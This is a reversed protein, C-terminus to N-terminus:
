LPLSARLDKRQFTSHNKDLFERCWVEISVLSFMVFSADIYGRRDKEILEKVAKPNFLGRQKLSSESLTEEVLSKLEQNMWHRIPLGFGQKKRHLIEEPVLGKVAEKFIFKTEFRKMKLCSPIKAVFDVVERDILPVRVEVGQSMSMKDVYNLNHDALFHKTELYLMRNLIDKEQEHRDLSRHFPEWVSHPLKLAKFRDGLLPSIAGPFQCMFYSSLRSDLDWELSQFVKFAKRLKSNKMLTSHGSKVGFLQSAKGVGRLSFDPFWQWIKELQVAVHRPYGSFIDDGGAGSLLVKIGMERAKKSILLTNIASPDAQPEDLHFIVQALSSFDKPTVEVITLPFGFQDAVRKAYYLDNKKIGEKNEHGITFCQFKQSPKAKKMMAVVSTSDLGGSLFAGVSVDSILQRKAASELVERLNETIESQSGTQITQGYPIDYFYDKSNVVGDRVLLWQGPEVKKINIFPSHPAPSYLYTMLFLLSKLDLEKSVESACLLAKIEFGFLFGSTTEAYYLPKVGLGDRYILLDGSKIGGKQGSDRGDYLAFAFIGNLKSFAEAGYEAYLHLIVETDTRSFFQHGKDELDRRLEPFNYIEGNYTIWLGHGKFKSTASERELSMPQAGASSLDLISLRRHALGVRKKSRPFLVRGQGDPGRHSLSEGMWDLLDSDFDGFFGAIGCM